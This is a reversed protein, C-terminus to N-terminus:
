QSLSYSKSWSSSWFHLSPVSNSQLLQAGPVRTQLRKILKAEFEVSVQLSDFSTWQLCSIHMLTVCLGAGVIRGIRRSSEITFDEWQKDGREYLDCVVSQENGRNEWGRIGQSKPFPPIYPESLHFNSRFLKFLKSPVTSVYFEFFLLLSWLYWQKLVIISFGSDWCLGEPVM